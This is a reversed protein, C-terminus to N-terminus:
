TATFANTIDVTEGLKNTFVTYSMQGKKLTTIHGLVAGDLTKFSKTM